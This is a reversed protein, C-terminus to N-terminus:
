SKSKTAMGLALRSLPNSDAARCLAYSILTAALAVVVFKVPWWVAWNLLAWGLLIIVTQHLIYFPYAHRSFDTLFKVPRDLKLKAWGIFAFLWAVEGAFRCLFIVREPLHISGDRGALWLFTFVMAGLAAPRLLAHIAAELRPQAGILWGLLLLYFYHAHNAWDHTLDHSSPFSRRLLLEALLVPLGLLLPRYGQALYGALKEALGSRLLLAILPLALLAYVFLYAIFWLHHWSFNAQPYCCDVIHPLFDFYSGHFDLPSQRNAIQPSIREVYVQPPVIVLMGFVLPLLLRKVRERAVAVAPRRQLAYAMSIGALLFLVPMHWQNMLRVLNDAFGAHVADKIHWSQADFLRATHFLILLLVAINRLNDIDLRRSGPHSVPTISTAHSM